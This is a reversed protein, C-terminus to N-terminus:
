GMGMMGCGGTGCAPMGCGGTGCAVPLDSARSSSGAARPAAPVSFEKVLHDSDGCTPCRPRDSSSRVLAEFSAHCPECHYEYIPM